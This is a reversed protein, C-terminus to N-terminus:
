KFIDDDNINKIVVEGEDINEKLIKMISEKNKDGDDFYLNLVDNKYIFDDGLYIKDVDAIMMNMEKTHVEKERHINIEKSNFIKINEVDGLELEVKNNNFDFLINNSSDAGVFLFENTKIVIEKNEVDEVDVRLIKLKDYEKIVLDRTEGVIYISLPIKIVMGTFVKCCLDSLEALLNKDNEAIMRHRYHYIKDFDFKDSLKFDIELFKLFNNFIVLKQSSRAVDNRLIDVFINFLDVSLGTNNKIDYEWGIVKYLYSLIINKKPSTENGRFNSISINIDIINNFIDKSIKKNIQKALIELYYSEYKGGWVSFMVGEKELYIIAEEKIVISLKKQEINEAVESLAHLRIAKDDFKIGNFWSPTGDDFLFNKISPFSKIIFIDESLYVKECVPTDFVNEMSKSFIEKNKEYFSSFEKYMSLKEDYKPSYYECFPIFVDFINNIVDEYIIAVGDWLQMAFGSATSTLAYIEKSENKRLLTSKDDDEFSEIKFNGFNKDEVVKKLVDRDLCKFEKSGFDIWDEETSLMKLLNEMGIFFKGNKFNKKALTIVKNRNTKLKLVNKKLKPIINEIKKTYKSPQNLLSNCEVLQIFKGDFRVVAMILKEKSTRREKINYFMFLSKGDEFYHKWYDYKYDEENFVCWNTKEIEGDEKNFMSESTYKDDIFFVKWDDDKYILPFHKAIEKSKGEGDIEEVKTKADDIYDVLDDFNKIANVDIKKVGYNNFNLNKFMDAYEEFYKLSKNFSEISPDSTDMLFEVYLRLFSGALKEGSKSTRTPDAEFIKKIRGKAEDDSMLNRMKPFYKKIQGELSESIVRKNKTKEKM